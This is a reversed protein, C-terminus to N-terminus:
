FPLMYPFPDAREASEDNLAAALSFVGCDLAVGIFADTCAEVADPGDAGEKEQCFFVLVFEEAEAESAVDVGIRLGRSWTLPATEEEAAVVKDDLRSVRRM